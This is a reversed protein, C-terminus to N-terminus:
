LLLPVVHLIYIGCWNHCLSQLFHSWPVSGKLFAQSSECLWREIKVGVVDKSAEQSIATFVNCTYGALLCLVLTVLCM